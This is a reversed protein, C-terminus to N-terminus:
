VAAVMSVVALRSLGALWGYPSIAVAQPEIKCCYSSCLIWHFSVQDGLTTALSEFLLLTGFGFQQGGIAALLLGIAM